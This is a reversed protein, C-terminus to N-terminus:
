ERMQPPILNPISDEIPYREPCAECVLTGTSVDGDAEEVEVVLKLPNKCQPCALIDVLDKRM